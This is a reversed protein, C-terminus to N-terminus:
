AKTGLTWASFDQRGMCICEIVLKLFGTKRRSRSPAGRPAQESGCRLGQSSDTTVGRPAHAGAVMTISLWLGPRVPISVRHRSWEAAAHLLGAAMVDPSSRCLSSLTFDPTEVSGSTTVGCKGGLTSAAKEKRFFALSAQGKNM